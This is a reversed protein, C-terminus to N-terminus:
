EDLNSHSTYLTTDDAFSLINGQCSNCIDNVYILYLLPGLISGQPVGIQILAMQSKEGDIEVFQQRESLYNRFWENALGRIGYNHLKGLLIDHDIVDFAKSLDCLVALTFEPDTKSISSACHNLLHIIPHITTHKPRFGHQYKYLVAKNTLFTM